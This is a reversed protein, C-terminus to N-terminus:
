ELRAVIMMSENPVNTTTGPGSAVLEIASGSKSEILAVVCCSVNGSGQRYAYAKPPTFIGDIRFQFSVTGSTSVNVSPFAMILWRGKQLLRIKSGDRKAINCSVIDVNWPYAVGSSLNTTNDTSGWVGTLASTSEQKDPTRTKPAGRELAAIKRYLITTIATLHSDM